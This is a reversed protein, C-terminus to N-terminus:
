KLANIQEITLGTIEQITEIPLGKKLCNHAITEIGKELGEARGVELGEARGEEKAFDAVERVDNYELISKRYKEM